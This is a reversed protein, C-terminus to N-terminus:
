HRSIKEADDIVYLDIIGFPVLEVAQGIGPLIGDCARAIQRGMINAMARYIEVMPDHDLVICM